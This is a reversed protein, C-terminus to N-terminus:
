PNLYAISANLISAFIVWLLYPLLLYLTSKHITYFYKITFIIAVILVIIEVFALLPQHWTFFILSWLMNLVFQIVFLRLAIKKNTHKSNIVLWLAIGMLTFLLSWVPGFLWDPPNFSPKNITAYWTRISKITLFSPLSGVILCCIISVYLSLYKKM